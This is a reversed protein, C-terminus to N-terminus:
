VKKSTLWAIVLIPPTSILYFFLKVFLNSFLLGEIGFIIIALIAVLVYPTEAKVPFDAPFVKGSVGDVASSYTKGKYSYGIKFLPLHYLVTTRIEVDGRKNRLWELATDRPIEPELLPASGSLHQSAPQTEGAPLNIAQLGVLASPLAPELVVQEERDSVVTFAWFPFYELTPEGIKAKKDLDAVTQTGALFRRLHASVKNGTITPVMIQHFLSASGDIVLATSCYECQQLRAGPAVEITAGCQTCRVQM